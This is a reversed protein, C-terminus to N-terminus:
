ADQQMAVMLERVQNFAQSLPNGELLIANESSPQDLLSAFRAFADGIALYAQRDQEETAEALGRALATQFKERSEDLAAADRDERCDYPFTVTQYDPHNSM